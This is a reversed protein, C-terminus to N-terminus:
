RAKLNAKQVMWFAFCSRHVWHDVWWEGFSDQVDLDVKLVRENRKLACLACPRPSAMAGESERATRVVPAEAVEPITGLSGAGSIASRLRGLQIRWLRLVEAVEREEKANEAKDIGALKMGGSKSSSAPGIRMSQALLTDRKWRLKRGAIIRALVTAVALYSKLFTGTAPHTLIADRTLVSNAHRSLPELLQDQVLEFIPPFLPLLMVPPPINFPPICTDSGDIPPLIPALDLPPKAQDPGSQVTRPQNNHLAGNSPTSSQNQLFDSKLSEEILCGQINFEDRGGGDDEVVTTSPLPGTSNAVYPTDRSQSKHTKQRATEAVSTSEPFVLNETAREIVTGHSSEGDLHADLGILIMSPPMQEEAKRLELAKLQRHNRSTTEFDGFGDEGFEDEVDFLVIKDRSTRASKVHNDDAAFQYRSQPLSLQSNLGPRCGEDSAVSDSTSTGRQKVSDEFTPEHNIFDHHTTINLESRVPHSSNIGGSRGTEFDGFDEEEEEEEEERERQGEEIVLGQPRFPASVRVALEPNSVIKLSASSNLSWPDLENIDSSADPIDRFSSHPLNADPKHPQYFLDFEALLDASM